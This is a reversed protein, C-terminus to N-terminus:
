DSNSDTVLHLTQTPFAFSTGAQEVVEMFQLLVEQRIGQFEAWDPTLFWATVELNLSSSSLESFRVVVADPWIKPHGRLVAELGALVERLQTANTEYVLGLTCALRIRDREAFSELRMEAPKGNPLSIVTRDLTRIRTSRLGIREVTGVFDEIRVLDGERFPQDIGISFAGFLNEVTKQGALAFALGGIGLGAILSTVPFGLESLVAIIAILWVTVTTTRAGLPVLARSSPHEMAWSSEALVNAVVTITRLLAWFFAMFYGVHLLRDVFHRAPTNLGLMPSMASVTVCVWAMSMPGNLRAVVADDWLVKTRATVRGLFKSSLAGMALGLLLALAGVVLLGLWQWYMLDSPGTRLLVNPLHDLVWANDLSVFWRDINAVTRRTFVWRADDGSDLRRMRVPQSSGAVTLTAVQDILSPLGDGTDGNAHGSIKSFDFWIQSDLVAKLRRALAPARAASAAPVDLYAAAESFEGQSTLAMFQQLSERPSPVAEAPTTAVPLPEACACTAVQFPQLALVLVALLFLRGRPTATARV